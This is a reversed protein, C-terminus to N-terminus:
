AAEGTKKKARRNCRHQARKHLPEEIHAISAAQTRLSTSKTSKAFVHVWPPIISSVSVSVSQSLNGNRKVQEVRGHCSYRDSLLHSGSRHHYHVSENTIAFQGGPDSFGSFSDTSRANDDVDGGDAATDAAENTASAVMPIKGGDWGVVAMPIASAVKSIAVADAVSAVASAMMPIKGADGMVVATPIALAVADSVPDAASAVMSVVAPFKGTDGMVVAVPLVSAVVPFVAADVVANSASAVAPSNWAKLDNRGGHSSLKYLIPLKRKTCCSCQSQCRNDSKCQRHSQTCHFCNCQIPFVGIASILAVSAALAVAVPFFCKVGNLLCHHYTDKSQSSAKCELQKDNCNICNVPFNVPFLFDMASIQHPPLYYSVISFVMATMIEIASTRSVSLITM